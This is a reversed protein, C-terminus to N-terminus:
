FLVRLPAALTAVRRRIVRGSPYEEETDGKPEECLALLCELCRKSFKERGLPVVDVGLIGVSELANLPAPIPADNSTINSPVTVSSNRISKHSATGPRSTPVRSIPATTSAVSSRHSEPLQQPHHIQQQHQSPNLHHSSLVESERQSLPMTSTPNAFDDVSFRSTIGNHAIPSDAGVHAISSTIGIHTVYLKSCRTIIKMM